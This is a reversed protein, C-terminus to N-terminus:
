PKEHEGLGADVDVPVARSKADEPRPVKPASRIFIKNLFFLAM